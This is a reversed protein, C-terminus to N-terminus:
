ASPGRPVSVRRPTFIWLAVAAVAFGILAFELSLLPNRTFLGLVAGALTGLATGGVALGLPVHRMLLWAALPGLVAGVAAGVGGGILLMEPNHMLEADGPRVVIIAMMVAGVVGGAVAGAVALGATVAAIRKIDMTM